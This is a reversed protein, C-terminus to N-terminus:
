NDRKYKHKLKKLQRNWYEELKRKKRNYKVIALYGEDAFETSLNTVILQIYANKMENKTLEMHPNEFYAQGKLNVRLIGYSYGRIKLHFNQLEEWGWCYPMLLTCTRSYGMYSAGPKYFYKPAVFNRLFIKILRFALKRASLESYKISIQFKVMTYFIKVM